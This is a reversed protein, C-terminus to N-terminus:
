RRRRRATYPPLPFQTSRRAGASRSTSRDDDPLQTDPRRRTRRSCWSAASCRRRCRDQHQRALRRAPRRHHAVTYINQNRSGANGPVCQPWTQTPDVLSPEAGPAVPPTYDTWRYQRRLQRRAASARRPQRDLGCPIGAADRHDRHQLGVQGQRGARVGAGRHRRHLRRHVARHGAHVDAPEAPEGAATRPGRERQPLGHHLRVSSRRRSTRCPAPRAWRRAFTSRRAGAQQSALQDSVFQGFAQARTERVDYYVLMLKGGAFTM